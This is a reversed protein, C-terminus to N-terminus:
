NTSNVLLKSTIACFTYFTDEMSNVIRVTFTNTKSTFRSRITAFLKCTNKFVNALRGALYHQGWKSFSCKSRRKRKSFQCRISACSLQTRGKQQYLLAYPNMFTLKRLRFRVPSVPKSLLLCELLMACPIENMERLHRAFVKCCGSSVVEKFTIVVARSM